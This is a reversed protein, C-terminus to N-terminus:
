GELFRDVAHYREFWVKRYYGSIKEMRNTWRIMYHGEAEPLQPLEGSLGTSRDNNYSTVM